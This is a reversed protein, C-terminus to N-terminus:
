GRDGEKSRPITDTNGRHGFDIRRSLPDEPPTYQEPEETDARDSLRFVIFAVVAGLLTLILVIELM